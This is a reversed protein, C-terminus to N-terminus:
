SGIKSAIDQDTKEVIEAVRKLQENIDVLLESFQRIKPSLEEFQSEFSNFATGEWNDKIIGQETTLMNLVDTITNAGQEYKQASIVLEEPTLKIRSM